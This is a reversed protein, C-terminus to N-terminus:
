GGPTNPDHAKEKQDMLLPPFGRPALSWGEDLIMSTTVGDPTLQYFVSFGTDQHAPRCEGLFPTTCGLDRLAFVHGYLQILAGERMKALAEEFKM